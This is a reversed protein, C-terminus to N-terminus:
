LNSLYQRRREMKEVESLTNYHRDLVEGSVDCRDSIIQKPVDDRLQSSISSRRFVHPSVSDNCGAIEDRGHEEVSCSCEEAIFQPVTVRYICNRIATTSLRGSRSTALLADRGHEDQVDPRQNEIWDRLLTITRDSIAIYREASEKNKLPTSYGPRHHIEIYGDDLVVDDVDIARLTGIRASTTWLLHVLLHQRGAYHYKALYDLIKHVREAQIEVSRANEGKDLEPVDVAEDLGDSVADINACFRIFVKLTSMQTRVSVRNLDGDDKRWLRYEHLKRGTMENLDDIDLEDCWRVFHQLRIRHARYTSEPVEPERHSLYMELAKEPTLPELDRTM